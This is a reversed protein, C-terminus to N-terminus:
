HGGLYNVLLANLDRLLNPNPGLINNQPPGRFDRPNNFGGRGRGGFSDSSSPRNGFGRNDNGFGRKDNRSADKDYGKGTKREEVSLRTGNISHQKRLVRRADETSAYTIFAFNRFPTPLYVDTLEGFKEFVERLEKATTLRPIRAIFLSMPQNEKIKVTVVRGGIHHHSGIAQRADDINKFRIFGFGRSKGTIYDNKIECLDLEGYNKEFYEKMEEVTTKYPLGTVPLDRLLPDKAAVKSKSEDEADDDADDDDAKRKRTEEDNV